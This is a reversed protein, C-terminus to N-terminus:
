ENRYSPSPPASSTFKMPEMSQGWKLKTRLVEFYDLALPKVFRLHTSSLTIKVTQGLELACGVQGDCTLFVEQGASALLIEIEFPTPVVIPRDTLNFSCIPTIVAVRATPCVIPGGASLNYATSGTPTSIILGDARYHTLYGGNVYAQLDIIRAMAGKNIVADNLVTEQFIVKGDQLITVDFRIRDEVICFGELIKRLEEICSKRPIETLFGLSGLNVGVVPIGCRGLWRVASLFTGDGGLVILLTSSFDSEPILDYPTQVPMAAPVDFTLVDSKKLFGEVKELVERCEKKQKCFVIAKKVWSM